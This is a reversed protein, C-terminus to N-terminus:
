FSVVVEGSIVESSGLWFKIAKILNNNMLTPAHGVNPVKVLLMGPKKEQFKSIIEPTLMTSLKGWILMLPCDILEALIWTSAYEQDFESDHISFREELTRLIEFDYNFIFKGNENQKVSNSIFFDWDEKFSIGFLVFSDKLNQSIEEYSDYEKYSKSFYEFIQSRAKQPSEPSIDNLIMKEILDPREKNVMMGLIGGMSVGIWYCNEIELFDSSSTKREIWLLSYSLISIFLSLILAISIVKRASVKAIKEGYRVPSEIFSLSIQALILSLVITSIRWELPPTEGLFLIRAFALLPWHWLYWGYSLLGLRVMAKMSLLKEVISFGQGGSLILLITSLVPITAFTGPFRTDAQFFFTCALIGLLGLIGM